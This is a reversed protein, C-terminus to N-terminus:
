VSLLFTLILDEWLVAAVAAKPNGMTGATPLFWLFYNVSAWNATCFWWSRDEDM